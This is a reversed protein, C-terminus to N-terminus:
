RDEVQESRQRVRGARAPLQDPDGVGSLELQDGTRQRQEADLPREDNGALVPEILERVGGRRPHDLDVALLDLVILQARLVDTDLGAVLAGKGAVAGAARGLVVRGDRALYQLPLRGARAARRRDLEAPVSRSRASASLTTRAYSRPPALASDTSVSPGWKPPESSSRRTARSALSSGIRRLSKM